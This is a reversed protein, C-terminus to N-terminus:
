AITGARCTRSEALIVLLKNLSILEELPPSMSLVEPLMLCIFSHIFTSEVKENEVSFHQQQQEQQQRLFRRYARSSM